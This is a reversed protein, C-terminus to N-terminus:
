FLNSDDVSLSGAVVVTDACMARLEHFRSKLDEPKRDKHAPVDFDLCFTEPEAPLVAVVDMGLDLAAEAFVMDAGEAMGCLARFPTDPFINMIEKLKSRLAVRLQEESEPAVDRHGTVAVAMPIRGVTPRHHAQEAQNRSSIGSHTM